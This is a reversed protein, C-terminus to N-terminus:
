YRPRAVSFDLADGVKLRRKAVAGAPLELVYAGYGGASAVKNDPTDLRSSPLNERIASIKKDLDIWIMDLSVLTNKMWFNLTMAQPFAFLMGDGEKMHTVCMLGKERSQPTDAVSVWMARGDPFKLKARKLNKQPRCQELPKAVRDAAGASAALLLALASFKM